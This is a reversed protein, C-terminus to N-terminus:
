IVNKDKLKRWMAPQERMLAWSHWVKQGQEWRSKLANAASVQAKNLSNAPPLPKPDPSQQQRHTWENIAHVLEKMDKGHRVGLEYGAFGIVISLGLASVTYVGVRKGLMVDPILREIGQQSLLANAIEPIKDPITSPHFEGHDITREGTASDVVFKRTFREEVLGPLSMMIHAMGVLAKDVYKPREAM